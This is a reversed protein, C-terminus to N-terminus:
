GRAGTRLDARDGRLEALVSGSLSLGRASLRATAQDDSGHGDLLARDALDGAAVADYQYITGCHFPPRKVSM